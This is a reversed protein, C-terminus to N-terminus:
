IFKTAQGSLRVNIAMILKQIMPLIMVYGLLLYIRRKAGVFADMMLM